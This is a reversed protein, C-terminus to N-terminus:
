QTSNPAISSARLLKGVKKQKKKELLVPNKHYDVISVSNSKKTYSPDNKKNKKFTPMLFNLRFTVKKTKRKTVSTM